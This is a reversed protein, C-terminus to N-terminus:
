AGCTFGRDKDPSSGMSRLVRIRSDLEDYKKAHKKWKKFEADRQEILKQLQNNM